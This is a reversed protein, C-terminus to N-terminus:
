EVSSPRAVPSSRVRAGLRLDAEAQKMEALLNRMREPGSLDLRETNEELELSRGRSRHRARYKLVLQTRSM